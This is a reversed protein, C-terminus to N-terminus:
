FNIYKVPVHETLWVGNDSLYFTFGDKNMEESRVTLIIAEGRREGVKEATARDHSMHVHHRNMKLLGKVRIAPLFREVTGHFLQEPPDKAELQLEVDISHGQNARIKSRDENYAFRQKDNAAVIEELDQSTFVKGAVISKAILDGVDAWGHEDLRLDIEDPKHRLVLSLFRSIRNREKENM